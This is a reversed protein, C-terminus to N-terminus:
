RSIRPNEPCIPSNKLRKEAIWGQTGKDAWSPLSVIALSNIAKLSFYSFKDKCTRGKTINQQGIIVAILVYIINAM